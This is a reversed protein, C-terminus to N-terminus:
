GAAPRPAPAVDATSRDPAREPARQTIRLSGFMLHVGVRVVPTGPARPAPTVTGGQTCFLSIGRLEVAVGAPVTLRVDGFLCGALRPRTRVTGAVARCLELETEAERAGWGPPSSTLGIRGDGCAAQLLEAVRSRHDDTVPALTSM